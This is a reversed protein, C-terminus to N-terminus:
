PEEKGAFLYKEDKDVLQSTCPQYNNVHGKYQLVKRGMRVDWLSLQLLANDLFFSNGQAIKICDYRLMGIM